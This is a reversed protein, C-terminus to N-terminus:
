ENGQKNNLIRITLFTEIALFSIFIIFFNKKEFGSDFNSTALIPRLIFYSIVMKISTLLLFANGVYDLNRQRVVLLLSLILFSFVIFFIYLFPLSYNWKLLDNAPVLNKILFYNIIFLFTSSFFLPVYTKSVIKLLLSSNM